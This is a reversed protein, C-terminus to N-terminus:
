KVKKIYEEVEYFEHYQGAMDYRNDNDREAEFLKGLAKRQNAIMKLCDDANAKEELFLNKIEHAYQFSEVQAAYLNASFSLLATIVILSKM